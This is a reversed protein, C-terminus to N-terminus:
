SVVGAKDLTEGSRLEGGPYDEPKTIGTIATNKGIRVDSPIESDEGVVALGFSYVKPKVHNPIDDGVGIVVRDGVIVNEAIIARDLYAGEGIVTG